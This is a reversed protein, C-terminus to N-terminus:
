KGSSDRFYVPRPLKGGSIVSGLCLCRDRLWLPVAACGDRYAPNAPLLYLTGAFDECWQRCLIKGEYLFVAAEFEEPTHSVSIYVEAGSPFFPEMSGDQLTVSFDAGDPMDARREILEYYETIDAIDM